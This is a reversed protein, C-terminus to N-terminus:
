EEIRFTVRDATVKAKSNTFTGAMTIAENGLRSWLFILAVLRM